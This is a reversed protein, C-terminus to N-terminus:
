FKENNKLPEQQSLAEKLFWKFDTLSTITYSSSYSPVYDHGSLTFIMNSFNGTTILTIQCYSPLGITIKDQCTM